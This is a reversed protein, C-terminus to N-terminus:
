GSFDDACMAQLGAFVGLSPIVSDEPYDRPKRVRAPVVATGYHDAMQQYRDSVFRAADGRTKRHTATLANDPVVIQPVGTFFAFAEVHGGVWSAMLIGIPTPGVTGIQNPGM